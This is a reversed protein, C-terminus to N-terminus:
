GFDRYSASVPGIAVEPSPRAVAGEMVGEANVSFTGAAGSDTLLYDGPPLNGFFASIDYTRETEKGAPLLGGHGISGKVVGPLPPIRYTIGNEELYLDFDPQDDYISYVYDETGLNKMLGNLNDPNKEDPILELMVDEAADVSAAELYETRWGKEEKLFWYFGAYAAPRREYEGTVEYGYDKLLAPFNISAKRLTGDPFAMVDKEWGLNIDKGEKTTLYVAYFPEAANTVRNRIEAGTKRSLAKLLSEKTAQDSGKPLSWVTVLGEEYGAIVFSSRAADITDFFSGSSSCGMSAALLFSLILCIMRKM